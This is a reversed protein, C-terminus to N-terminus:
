KTKGGVLRERLKRMAEGHIQRAREKTVGLMKGIEGYSAPSAGLGFRSAVVQRERGDLSALLVEVAVRRAEPDAADGAPEEPAGAAELLADKGTVFNVLHEGAKPVTRAYTKLLAWTLYTSFRNGRAVDFKEIARLLCMNGESVLDSLPAGSGTHRRAVSVVLRLYAHVLRDQIRGVERLLSALEDMARQAPCAGTLQAQLRAAKFKLYNYRLFLNAEEERSLPAPGYVSSEDADKPARAPRTSAPEHVVNLGLVYEDARRSQFVPHPVYEIRRAMLRRARVLRVIQYIASPTRSFRRALEAARAGAAFAEHISEAQQRTIPERWSDFIPTAHHDRDHNWLTYRIAERSRGTEDALRQAVQSPGMGHQRAYLRAREIVQGREAETIRSFRSSREVSAANRRVYEELSGQEFGTRRSGDPWLFRMALLGGQRWRAVTRPSVNYRGCVEPLTFVKESAAETRLKARGSIDYLLRLLDPILAEGRLEIETPRQPRFGTIKEVIFEYPYVSGTSLTPLLKKIRTIQRRAAGESAYRLEHRLRLMQSNLYRAM